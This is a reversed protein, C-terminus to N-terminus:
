SVARFGSFENYVNSSGDTAPKQIVSGIVQKGPLEKIQVAIMGSQLGTKELFEKLRFLSDETIWFRERMKKGPVMGQILEKDVSDDAALVRFNVQIGPTGKQSSKIEETSEIALLYDGVPLPRPREVDEM